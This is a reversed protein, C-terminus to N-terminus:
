IRADRMLIAFIDESSPKHEMDLAVPEGKAPGVLGMQRLELVLGMRKATEYFLEWEEVM